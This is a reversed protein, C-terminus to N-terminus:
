ECVGYVGDTSNYLEGYMWQGQENQYWGTAVQAGDVERQSLPTGDDLVLKGDEDYRVSVIVPGTPQEGLDLMEAIRQRVASHEDVLQGSEPDWMVVRDGTKLHPNQEMLADYQAKLREYEEVSMGEQLEGDSTPTNFVVSSITMASTFGEGPTWSTSGDITFTALEYESLRYKAYDQPNEKWPVEYRVVLDLIGKVGGHIGLGGTVAGNLPTSPGATLMGGLSVKGALNAELGSRVGGSVSMGGSFGAGVEGTVAAKIKAEAGLAGGVNFSTFGSKPDSSLSASPAGGFSAGAAGDLSIRFFMGKWPLTWTAHLPDEPFELGQLSLSVSASQKEPDVSINNGWVEVGFKKSGAEGSFKPLTPGEAEHQVVAGAAGSASSPSGGTYANLLDEASEGRVVRDAVADAHREHADGPTGADGKLRLGGAQQVVHAAEHAATHLDPSGGFAVHDGSAYARSGMAANAREADAGQHAQVGSIDHSGFSKQIRDLFPLSGSAGRVGDGAVGLVGDDGGGPPLGAAVAANGMTGQAFLPDDFAAADFGDQAPATAAQPAQQPARARAHSASM